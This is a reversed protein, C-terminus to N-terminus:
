ASESKDLNMPSNLAILRRSETLYRAFSLTEGTVPDVITLLFSVENPLSIISVVEDPKEPDPTILEMAMVTGGEDFVAQFMEPTMVYYRTELEEFTETRLKKPTSIWVFGPQVSYDLNLPKLVTKLIDKISMNQLDIKPLM